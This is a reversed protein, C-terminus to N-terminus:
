DSSNKSEKRQLRKGDWGAFVIGLVVSSVALGYEFPGPPLTQLLYTEGFWLGFFTLTSGLIFAAGLHNRLLWGMGLGLSIWCLVIGFLAARGRFLPLIAEARHMRVSYRFFDPRFVGSLKERESEAKIMVVGRDFLAVVRTPVETRVAHPLIFEPHLGNLGSLPTRIRFVLDRGQQALTANRFDEDQSFTIIRAPGVQKDTHSWVWASLEIRQSQEALETLRRTDIGNAPTICIKKTSEGACIQPDRVVGQYQRGGGVEDGAHVLFGSDWGTLKLGRNLLTLQYFSTGAIGLFVLLSVTILLHSIKLGSARLQVTVWTAFAAGLWGALIDYPSLSRGEIWWQGGELVLALLVVLKWTHILPKYSNKRYALATLVTALPVFLLFHTATEVDLAPYFQFKPPSARLEFPAWTLWVAIAILWCLLSLPMKPRHEEIM